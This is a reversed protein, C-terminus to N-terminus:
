GLETWLTEALIWEFAKGAGYTGFNISGAIGGNSSVLVIGGRGREVMPKGFLNCFIIPTASDVAVSALQDELPVDLFRGFMAITANYVFLGVDLDDTAAGVLGRHRSRRPRRGRVHRSAM